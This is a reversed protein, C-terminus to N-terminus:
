SRRDHTIEGKIFPAAATFYTLATCVGSQAGMEDSDQIALSVINLELQV